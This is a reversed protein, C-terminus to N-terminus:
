VCLRDVYQLRDVGLRHGGGALAKAPDEKVVIPGLAPDGGLSCTVAVRDSTGALLTSMDEDSIGLPEMILISPVHCALIVSLLLGPVKM